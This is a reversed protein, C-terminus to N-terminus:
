ARAVALVPRPAGPWTFCLKLPPGDVRELRVVPPRYAYPAIHVDVGIHVPKQTLLLLRLGMTEFLDGYVEGHAALAILTV